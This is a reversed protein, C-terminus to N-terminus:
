FSLAVGGMFRNNKPTDDNEGSLSARNSEVAVLLKCGSGFPTLGLVSLDQAVSLAIKDSDNPVVAAATTLSQRAGHLLVAVGTHTPLVEVGARASWFHGRSDTVGYTASTGPAVAGDIEGYRASLTAALAPSIRHQASAQYQRVTNGDLLYVSDLNSLFDGEFFARVVEGVRQESAEVRFSTGGDVAREIGVAYAQRSAASLDDEISAIRPMSTVTGIGSEVVRYLGSVFLYTRGGVDYRAVVRPAIGYGGAVYRGVVGGDIQTRASVRVGGSAALDADPSSAIFAGESGVGSPGVAAERHRYTMGVSVGPTDSVPRAYNAQVEWTRSAVPFFTTGPASARYLNTEEIYRAAVSQVTGTENGRSWSVMNTQLSAPGDDAFNVSNRRAAVQVNEESSPAVALALGASNGSTTTTAPDNGIANYDGTVNYQWGNSLGGRLAATTHVAADGGSSGAVTSVEGGLARRAAFRDSTHLTDPPDMDLERLVDAPLRDALDWISSRVPAGAAARAGNTALQIQVSSVDRPAAQHVIRVLAPQYGKKYAILDYVGVPASALVFTGDSATKMRALSTEAVNYLVVLAGAVPAEVSRVVGSIPPAFASALPLPPAPPEASAACAAFALAAAAWLSLTRSRKM